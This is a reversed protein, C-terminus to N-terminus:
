DILGNSIAVAKKGVMLQKMDVATSAVSPEAVEALTELEAIAGETDETVGTRILGLLIQNNAADQHIARILDSYGKNSAFQGLDRQTEDILHMSM